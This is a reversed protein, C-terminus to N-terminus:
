CRSLEPTSLADTEAGGASCSISMLWALMFSNSLQELCGGQHASRGFAGDAVPGDAGLLIRKFLAHHAVLDIVADIVEPNSVV